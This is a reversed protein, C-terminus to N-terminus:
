MMEIIYATPIEDACTNEDTVLIFDADNGPLTHYRRWREPQHIHKVHVLATSSQMKMGNSLKVLERDNNNIPYCLWENNILMHQSSAISSSPECWKRVWIPLVFMKRNNHSSIHQTTSTDTFYNCDYREMVYKNNMKSILTIYRDNSKADTLHSKSNNFSVSVHSLLRIIQRKTADSDRNNTVWIDHLPDYRYIHAGTYYPVYVYIHDDIVKVEITDNILTWTENRVPIDFGAMPHWTDDSSDYYSCRLPRVKVGLYTDSPTQIHIWRHGMHIATYSLDSPCVFSPMISHDLRWRILSRLGTLSRTPVTASLAISRIDDMHCSILMKLRRFTYINEGKAFGIVYLRDNIIAANTVSELPYSGFVRRWGPQDLQQSSPREDTDTHIICEARQPLSSSLWGISLRVDMLM